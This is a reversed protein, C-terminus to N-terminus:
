RRARLALVVPTPSGGEQLREVTLGADLVMHLLEPLPWHSAGVKDRIGQDTWSNRTWHGDRYGPAIVIAQADSRDAFGGCFCPHVGIHVFVGGPALVRAAEGVVAPYDPMDTHAMVTVVAPVCGDPLPLRRADARVVPLRGAAYGLMGESSDIGFPSWGLGRITDAHVGTGCGLELCPGAGTGLLDRLCRTVGL